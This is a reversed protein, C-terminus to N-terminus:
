QVSKQEASCWSICPYMRTDGCPELIGKDHFSPSFAVDAGLYCATSVTKSSTKRNSFRLPKTITVAMTVPRSRKVGGWSSCEPEKDVHIEGWDNSKKM